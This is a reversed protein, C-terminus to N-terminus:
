AEKKYAAMFSEITPKLIKIESECFLKMVQWIIVRFICFMLHNRFSQSLCCFLWPKVMSLSLWVYQIVEFKNNM